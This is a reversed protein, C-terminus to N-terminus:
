TDIGLFPLQSSIPLLDSGVLVQDKLGAAWGGLCGSLGLLAGHHSRWM